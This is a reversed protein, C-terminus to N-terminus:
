QINSQNSQTEPPTAAPTIGIYHLIDEVKQWQPMRSATRSEKEGQHLWLYLMNVWQVYDTGERSSLRGTKLTSSRRKGKQSDDKVTKTIWALYALDTGPPLLSSAYKRLESLVRPRHAARLLERAEDEETPTTTTDPLTEREPEKEISM